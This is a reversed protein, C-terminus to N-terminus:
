GCAADSKQIIQDAILCAAGEMTTPSHHKPGYDADDEQSGIGCVTITQRLVRKGYVTRECQYQISNHEIVFKSRRSPSETDSM